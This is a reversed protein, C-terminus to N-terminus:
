IAISQKIFIKRIWDVTDKLSVKFDIPEWDLEKRAKNNSVLQKKGGLELVLDRTIQRPQGTLKNVLWDLGTLLHLKKVPIIYKPVKISTDVENLEKLLDLMTYSGESVIYRGSAKDSEYALMQVKAVDRVDVYSFGFPLAFHIKNRVALEFPYTTPTHRYFGPGIVCAPNVSIMNIGNEEAFEWARKEGLTKATFYPNVTNNNWNEETLPSNNQAETGIAVISSTYIVKRVNANYAARLVNLGGTINPEIIDKQPDKSWTRYVAALQFVGDIGDFVPELTKPKLIDAEYIEVGLEKLDSLNYEDDFSKIVARVKYNNHVLLKVLNNGIHGNAGTVLVNKM